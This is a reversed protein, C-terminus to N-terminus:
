NNKKLNELIRKGNENDPNLVISQKYNKIASENNGNKMHAEALSDYVNWSDPYQRVNLKFIKIAHEYQGKNILIYGLSNLENESFDYQISNAKKLKEYNDVADDISSKTIIKLLTTAISKKPYDFPLNFLINSIKNTISPIYHSGLNSLIIITKNRDIFRRIHTKYGEISGGHEAIKGYKETNIINWGYGYKYSKENNLIVPTFIEKLLTSDILDDGYLIKDWKYLDATTSIIKGAGFLLDYPWNAVNYISDNEYSYNHAIAFNNQEIRDYSYYFNTNSMELTEFIKEKVYKDYPMETVKEIILPLIWYGTNCYEWKEGPDFRLPIKNEIMIDLVVKNTMLERQERIEGFYPYLESEPLGSTHTLLHKVTINKFPFDPLYTIAKENVDIRNSKVLLMTAMATFQKSISAIRFLTNNNLSTKSKYDSFGFWTNTIIVDNEAVLVVGNFQGYKNSVLLVSDILEQKTQSLASSLFLIM